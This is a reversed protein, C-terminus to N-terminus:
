FANNKIRCAKMEVDIENIRRQVISCLNQQIGGNTVVGFKRLDDQLIHFHVSQNIIIDVAQEITLSGFIESQIPQCSPNKSSLVDRASLRKIITGTFTELINRPSQLSHM